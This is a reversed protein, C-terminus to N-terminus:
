ASEEELTGFGSPFALRVENYSRLIDPAVKDLAWARAYQAVSRLWILYGADRDADSGGAQHRDNVSEISWKVTNTAALWNMGEDATAFQYVTLEVGAQYAASVM